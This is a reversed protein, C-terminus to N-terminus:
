KQNVGSKKKEIKVKILGDKLNGIQKFTRPSLDIIRGYKKFGGKDNVKCYVFKGNAINTVKLITNFPYDNSACTFANENYQEGNSTINSSSKITYYSAIGEDAYLKGYLCFFLLFLIIVKKM